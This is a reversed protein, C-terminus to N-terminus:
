KPSRWHVRGKLYLRDDRRHQPNFLQAGSECGAMLADLISQQATM